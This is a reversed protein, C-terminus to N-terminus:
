ILLASNLISLSVKDSLPPSHSFCLTTRFSAQEHTPVNAIVAPLTHDFHLSHSNQYREISLFPITNREAIVHSTCCDPIESTFSLVGRTAPPMMECSPNEMNMMPCLFRVVPIGVNFISFVLIIFYSVIINTSGSKM